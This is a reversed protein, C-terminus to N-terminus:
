DQGIARAVADRLADEDLGHELLYDVILRVEITEADGLNFYIAKPGSIRGSSVFVIEEPGSGLPNSYGLEELIKSWAAAPLTEDM